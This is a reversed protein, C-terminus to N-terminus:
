DCGVTYPSSVWTSFLLKLLVEIISIALPLQSSNKLFLTTDDALQSITINRGAISIGELNSSKILECLLQAELLFSLSIYPM